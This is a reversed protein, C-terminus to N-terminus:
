CPSGVANQAEIHINLTNNNYNYLIVRSNQHTTYLRYTTKTTHGKRYYYVQRLTEIAAAFCWSWFALQPTGWNWM